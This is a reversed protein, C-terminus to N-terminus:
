NGKEIFPKVGYLRLMELYWYNPNYYDLTGMINGGVRAVFLWKHYWDM